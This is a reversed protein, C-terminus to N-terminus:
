LCFYSIQVFPVSVIDLGVIATHQPASILNNYLSSEEISNYEKEDYTFKLNTPKNSEESFEINYNIGVDTGTADIVINFSGETGPAIKNDVLTENNITSKLSITQIKEENENVKFKWNAIEATGNGTVKSM